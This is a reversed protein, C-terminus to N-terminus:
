DPANYLSEIAHKDPFFMRYVDDPNKDKVDSYHIGMQDAIRFVSTVSNRSMGRVVSIANRSMHSARLELILKVKIKTAM